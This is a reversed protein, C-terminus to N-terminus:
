AQQEVAQRIAVLEAQAQEGNKFYIAVVGLSGRDAWVCVGMDVGQANADGCKAIGGLPGPEVAKVNTIKLAASFGTIAADLEKEPDAVLASAGAVMVLDEKAPDGYFAGVTSSAGPLSKQMSGVMQDAIKQFDADNIKPREGLTEPEVLRTKSADVIEQADDKFAFLTVAVGGGCLLVLAAIVILVIKGAKSKKPPPPASVPSHGPYAEQDPQAYGPYSQGAPQAYDPYTPQGGSQYGPQSPQGYGPYSQQGGGQYGPQGYDPYSPQGGGQYGPQGPPRGYGPYSQQGPDPYGSTPYHPPQSM